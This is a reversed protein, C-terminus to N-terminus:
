HILRLCICLLISKTYIELVSRQGEGREMAQASGREGEGFQRGELRVISPVREIALGSRCGGMVETGGREGTDREREM